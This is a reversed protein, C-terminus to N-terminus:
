EGKLVLAPDVEVASRIPILCAAGTVAVSAIITIPLLLPRFMITSSFVHLSVYQAFLYGLISGLVGGVFGLLLGECLFQAIISSNYAGLAKRLGIERRREAIVAAMTTAVCIMTLVLVVATVIFVLSQLKTLVTSESATVRKVLRATVDHVDQNIADVYETLKSLVNSVSVEVIDCGRESLLLYSM